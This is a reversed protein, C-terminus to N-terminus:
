YVVGRGGPCSRGSGKYLIFFVGNQFPTNKLSKLLEVKRIRRMPSLCCLCLVWIRGSGARVRRMQHDSTGCGALSIVMSLCLVTLLFISKIRKTM